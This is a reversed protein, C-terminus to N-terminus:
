RPEGHGSITVWATLSTTRRNPSSFSRCASGTRTTSSPGLAYASAWFQGVSGVSGLGWGLAPTKKHVPPAYACAYGVTKDIKHEPDFLPAIAHLSERKEWREWMLAKQAETYYIRRRQKM